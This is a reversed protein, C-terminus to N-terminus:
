GRIELKLEEATNLEKFIMVNNGSYSLTYIKECDCTIETGFDLQGYLAQSDILYHICFECGDLTHILKSIRPMFPEWCVLPPTRRVPTHVLSLWFVYGEEAEPRPNSGM